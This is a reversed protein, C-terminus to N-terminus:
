NRWAYTAGDEDFLQWGSPCLEGEAPPKGIPWWNSDLKPHGTLAGPTCGAPATPSRYTLIAADDMMRVRVYMATADHPVFEPPATTPTTVSAPFSRYDTQVPPSEVAMLATCGTLSLTLAALAATALALRATPIPM